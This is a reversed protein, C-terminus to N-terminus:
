WISSKKVVRALCFGTAITTKLRISSVVLTFEFVSRHIFFLILIRLRLVKSKVQCSALSNHTWCTIKRFVLPKDLITWRFIYINRPAANSAGIGFGLISLLCTGFPGFFFAADMQLIVTVALFIFCRMWFFLTLRTTFANASIM